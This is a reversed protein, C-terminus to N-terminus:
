TLGVMLLGVSVAEILASTNGATPDQFCLDAGQVIAELVAAADGSRAASMLNQHGDSQVAACCSCWIGQKSAGAAATDGHVTHRVQGPDLSDERRPLRWTKM